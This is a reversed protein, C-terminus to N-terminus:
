YEEVITTQRLKTFAGILDEYTSPGFRIKLTTIFDDWSGISGSDKLWGFWSLANGEMHFFAIDLKQDDLTCFYDFFQEAKLIWDMPESGDFKPFDLRLTRAQIRENGEFM